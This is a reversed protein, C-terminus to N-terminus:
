DDDHCTCHNRWAWSRIWGLPLEGPLCGDVAYQEVFCEVALAKNDFWPVSDFSMYDDADVNELVAPSTYEKGTTLSVVAVEEAKAANTMTADTGKLEGDSALIADHQDSDANAVGDVGEEESRAEDNAGEDNTGGAKLGGHGDDAVSRICM